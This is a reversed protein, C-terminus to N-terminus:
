RTHSGLFGPPLTIVVAGVRRWLELAAQTDRSPYREVIVVTRAPEIGRLMTDNTASIVTGMPLGLAQATQACRIPTDSLIVTKLFRETTTM